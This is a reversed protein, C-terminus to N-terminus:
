RKNPELAVSGSETIVLQGSESQATLGSIQQETASPLTVGWAPPDDGAVAALANRLSGPVTSAQMEYYQTPAGSSMFRGSTDAQWFGDQLQAYLTVRGSELLGQLVRASAFELTFGKVEEPAQVPTAQVPTPEQQVPTPEQQMPTPEQVPNALQVPTPEQQMTTPEQVPNALQMPTPEQVANALQKVLAPERIQKEPLRPIPQRTQEPSSPHAAQSPVAESSPPVIKETDSNAEAVKPAPVSGEPNAVKPAPVSGEPNPVSGQAQELAASHVLSFIAALCLGLIAIFRMVDTQLAELEATEQSPGM